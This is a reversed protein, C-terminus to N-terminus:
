AKRAVFTLRQAAAALRGSGYDDWIGELFFGTQGLYYVLTSIRYCRQKICISSKSWCGKAGPAYFAIAAFNYPPQWHNQWVIDLGAANWAFVNDALVRRYKYESNVDFILRGGPPLCAGARRLFLIIERNLLLHNLSDCTAIILDAAVPLQSFDAQLLPLELGARRAKARAVALMDKSSDLGIVRYGLRRLGLAVTGTGCGVDVIQPNAAKAAIRAIFALWRQYPADAMLRDYYQALLAYAKANM